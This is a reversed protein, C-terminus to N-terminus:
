FIERNKIHNYAINFEFKEFNVSKIRHDIKTIIKMKPKEHCELEPRNKKTKRNKAMSQLTAQLIFCKAVTIQYSYSSNYIELSQQNSKKTM